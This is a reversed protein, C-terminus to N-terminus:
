QFKGGSWNDSIHDLPTGAGVSTSIGPFGSTVETDNITLLLVGTTQDILSFLSGQVQGRIFDGPSVSSWQQDVILTTVSGNVVKILRTMATGPAGTLNVDAVYMTDSTDSARLEVALDGIADEVVVQLQAWQDNPFAGAGIYHEKSPANGGAPYPQSQQSVIQIPGHDRGVNWNSGLNLADARNFDDSALQQATLPTESSGGSWNAMIYNPTSSGAYDIVGPYGRPITADTATLLTVSTTQNTMILSTGQVTCRVFDGASVTASTSSALPTYTGAQDLVIQVNANGAGVNSVVCAYHTDNSSMRVAPGEDGGGSAAVIQVQSYQNPPWNLGGFYMEKAITPNASAAEIQNSVTQLPVNTGPAVLPTWNPGLTPADARNFNDSALQAMAPEVVLTTSNTVGEYTAAITVPTAVAVSGTNVTFTATTLGQAVTVNAPVSATSANSTSLNVTAGGALAPGTLTVTGTSTAGGTVTTPNLGIAALTPGPPNVTLTAFQNDTNYTAMINVPSSVSVANTSVVFTNTTTGASITVSAPVTALTTDSSSLSVTVDSAPAVTLTVTGSSTNGGTLARPNLGLSFSSQFANKLGIVYGAWGNPSASTGTANYSGTATVTRDELFSTADLQEFTFGAGATYPTANFSNGFLGIITENTASTASTFGTDMSTGSGTATAVVDLPASTDLGSYEAVDILSFSATTGSYTITVRLPVGGVINKAYWAQFRSNPGANLPGSLPIYTNGVGDSASATVTQDDWHSFVLIFNGATANSSQITFTTVAAGKDGSAWQVLQGPGAVLFPNVTLNATKTLSRYVASITPSSSVAVGSTSVTFNATTSGATVSVSAPVAAVAPNNSSLTVSTGAAAPSTLTVTGTSINGGIVSTPNLSVSALAPPNVTLTATQTGNCTGTITPSTVAGVPSTTVTFNATTAGAGVIVSAPVTAAGNNSSLAVVAGGAPAPGNLTVTGTSPTGGIVSTPNLTVSILPPPNVTLTATQTVDATGSITVPTSLSVGNTTVTFNATTSGSTITVSAPVTAAATNSSSLAVTVGLVSAPADLTVTGTSNAQGGTVAAPNVSVATLSSPLVTLVATQIGNGIATITANASSPVPAMTIQFTASTAGQPITVTAPVTVLPSYSSSLNVIEGGQPAVDSLTVTGTTTGGGKASSPNISLSAVSPGPIPDYTIDVWYNSALSSANPFTGVPGVAFVGNPASATDGPAHLPAHDAPTGFAFWLSDVAYDGSNSHYSAIYPTNASIHAPAPLAVLQWGSATEATSTATALLQGGSTWLSVTHPGTNGVGKYFQISIIDGDSDAKFRVGLEIPTTAGNDTTGPVTDTPWITCPCGGPPSITLAFSQSVTQPVTGSDTVQLTFNYTGAATPTGELIGNSSLSVGPPLNGSVLSWVYPQTGGNASLVEFYFGGQYGDNLFQTAISLIAPTTDFVVDVWYNSANFSTNPFTSVAGNAFLGNGGGSGDGPMHLPPNDSPTGLAFWFPYVSYDGTNSHYSAIYDANATIHVPNSFLVQQWGSATEGSFTATAVLQGGVTWLNAVHTGTNLPGKYFKVGLVYGDADSRFRAGLEIPTSAGNDVTTPTADPPFMSTVTVGAPNVILTTSESGNYMGTVTVPTISGVSNTLISFNASTAGGPVTVSPDVLAAAPNNGSLTVIAGGGPAPSDLTVTGLVSSGGTAVAPNVTVSSISVAFASPALCALLVLSAFLGMSNPLNKTRSKPLGDQTRFPQVFGRVKSGLSPGIQIPDEHM